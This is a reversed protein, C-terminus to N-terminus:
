RPRHDRAAICELCHVQPVGDRGPKELMTLLVLATRGVSAHHASFSFAEASLDHCGAPSQLPPMWAEEMGTGLDDESTATASHGARKAGARTM